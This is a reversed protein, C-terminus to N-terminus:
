FSVSGSKQLFDQLIHINPTTNQFFIHYFRNYFFYRHPISVSVSNEVAFTVVTSESGVNISLIYFFYRHPISVQHLCLYIKNTFSIGILFQFKRM